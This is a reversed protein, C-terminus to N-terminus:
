HWLSGALLLCFVEMPPKNKRGFGRTFPPVLQNTIVYSQQRLTKEFCEEVDPQVVSPHDPRPHPLGHVLVEIQGYHADSHYIHDSHYVPTWTNIDDNAIGRVLQKVSELLM